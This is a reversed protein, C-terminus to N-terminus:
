RVAFAGALSSFVPSRLAAGSFGFLLIVCTGALLVGAIGIGHRLYYNMKWGSM